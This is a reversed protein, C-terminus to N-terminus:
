PAKDGGRQAGSTAPHDAHECQYKMRPAACPVDVVQGNDLGNGILGGDGDRAGPEELLLGHVGGGVREGLDAVPARELFTEALHRTGGRDDGDVDVMELGEVVLEAM